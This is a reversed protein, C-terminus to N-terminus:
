MERDSGLRGSAVGRNVVRLLTVTQGFLRKLTKEGEPGNSLM